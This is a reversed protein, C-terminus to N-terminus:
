GGGKLPVALAQLKSSLTLGGAQARAADLAFRVRGDRLVFEVAGGSSGQNQDTVTLVPAGRVLALADAPTQGHLRGIYLVQCGSNASVSQLRRVEVPRGAVTQGRVALDLTEGFPDQGAVCVVFPSNAAEFTRAPWDVFPAFKYLYNAKVAYELSGPQAAGAGAILSASLLALAAFPSRRQGPRHTLLAM